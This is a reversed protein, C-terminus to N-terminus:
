KGVYNRFDLLPKSPHNQALFGWSTNKQKTPQNKSNNAASPRIQLTYSKKKKKSNGCTPDLERVLIFGPGSGQSCLAKATPGGPFAGEHSKYENEPTAMFHWRSPLELLLCKQGWLEPVLLGWGFISPPNTKGSAGRRPQLCNGEQWETRLHDDRQM